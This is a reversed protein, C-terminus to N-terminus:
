NDYLPTHAKGVFEVAHIHEAGRVPREPSRGGYGSYGKTPYPPSAVHRAESPVDCVRLVNHSM